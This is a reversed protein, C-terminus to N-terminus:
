GRLSYNILQITRNLNAWNTRKASTDNKSEDQENKENWNRLERRTRRPSQYLTTECEDLNLSTPTRKRNSGKRAGYRTSPPSPPLSQRTKMRNQSIKVYVRSSHESSYLISLSFSGNSASLRLYSAPSLRPTSKKQQSSEAVWFALSHNIARVNSLITTHFYCGGLHDIIFQNYSDSASFRLNRRESNTRLSM